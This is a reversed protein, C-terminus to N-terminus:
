TYVSYAFTWGIFDCIVIDICNNIMSKNSSTSPQTTAKETSIEEESDIEEQKKM